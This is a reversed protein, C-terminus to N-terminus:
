HFIMFLLENLFIKLHGKQKKFLFEVSFFFPNQFIMTAM